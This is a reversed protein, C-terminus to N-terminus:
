FNIGCKAAMYNEVQTRDALSLAGNYVLVIKHKCPMIEGANGGLQVKTFTTSAGTDGSTSYDQTASHWRGLSNAGNFLATLVGWVGLEVNMYLNTGCYLSVRDPSKYHKIAWNNDGNSILTDFVAATPDLYTADFVTIPRTVGAINATALIDDTGDFDISNTAAAFVPRAGATAQLFNRSGGSLDNWRGVPETDGAPTTGATDQFRGQDYEAWVLPLVGGETTPSAPTWAPAAGGGQGAGYKFILDRVKM